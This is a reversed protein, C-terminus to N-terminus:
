HFTMGDEQEVISVKTMETKMRRISTRATTLCGTSPKETM